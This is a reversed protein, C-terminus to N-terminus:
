LEFNHDFIGIIAWKQRLYKRLKESNKVKTYHIIKRCIRKKMKIMHDKLIKEYPQKFPLRKQLRLGFAGYHYSKVDNEASM